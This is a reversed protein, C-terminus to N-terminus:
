GRWKEVGVLGVGRGVLVVAVREFSTALPAVDLAM